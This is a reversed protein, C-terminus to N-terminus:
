TVMGPRQGVRPANSLNDSSVGCNQLHAAVTRVAPKKYGDDKGDQGAPRVQTGTLGRSGHRGTACLDMVVNQRHPHTSSEAPRLRTNWIRDPAFACDSRDNKPPWQLRGRQRVPVVLNEPHRTAIRLRDRREPDPKLQHVPILRNAGRDALDNCRTWAWRDDINWCRPAPTQREVPGPPAVREVQLVRLGVLAAIACLVGPREHSMGPRQGLGRRGSTTQGEHVRDIAMVADHGEVPHWLAVWTSRAQSRRQPRGDPLPKGRSVEPSRRRATRRAM